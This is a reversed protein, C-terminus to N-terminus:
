RTSGRTVNHRASLAAPHQLQAKERECSEGKLLTYLTDGTSPQNTHKSNAFVARVALLFLLIVDLIFAQTSYVLWPIVLM